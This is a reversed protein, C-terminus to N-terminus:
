ELRYDTILEYGCTRQGVTLCSEGLSYTRLEYKNVRQGSSLKSITLVIDRRSSWGVRRTKFNLRQPLWISRNLHYADCQTRGHM